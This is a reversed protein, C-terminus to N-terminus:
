FARFFTCIQKMRQGEFLKFTDGGWLVLLLLLFPTIVGLCGKLLEIVPMTVFDRDYLQRRQIPTM